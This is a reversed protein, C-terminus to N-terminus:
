IYLTLSTIVKIRLLVAAPVLPLTHWQIRLFTDGEPGPGLAAPANISISFSRCSCPSGTCPLAWGSWEATAIEALLEKKGGGCSFHCLSYTVCEDGGVCGANEQELWTGESSRRMKTDEVHELEETRCSNLFSKNEREKRWENFEMKGKGLVHRVKEAVVVAESSRGESPVARACFVNVVETMELLSEIDGDSGGVPVRLGAKVSVSFKLLWLVLGALWAPLVLSIMWHSLVLIFITNKIDNVAFKCYTNWM